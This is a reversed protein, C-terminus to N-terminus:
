LGNGLLIGLVVVVVREHLLREKADVGNEIPQVVEHLCAIQLGVHVDVGFENLLNNRGAADGKMALGDHACLDHTHQLRAVEVEVM